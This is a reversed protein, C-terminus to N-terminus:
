VAAKLQENPLNHEVVYDNYLKRMTRAVWIEASTNGKTSVKASEDQIYDYTDSMTLVSSCSMAQYLISEDYNFGALKRARGPDYNKFFRAVGVFLGGDIPENPWYKRLFEFAKESPKPGINHWSKTLNSIHSMAGPRTKDPKKSACPTVGVRDCMEQIAVYTPDKQILLNRYLDYKGVPKSSSNIAIFQGSQLALAQQATMGSCINQVYVKITPIRALYAAACTHQGDTILINGQEDRYGSPIKMYEYKFNQGIKIAHPKNINRQYSHDILLTGPDVEVIDGPNGPDELRNLDIVLNERRVLDAITIANVSSTTVATTVASGREKLLNNNNNEPCGTIKGTIYHSGQAVM